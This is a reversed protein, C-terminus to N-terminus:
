DSEYQNKRHQSKSTFCYKTKKKKSSARLASLSSSLRDEDESPEEEEVDEDEDEESSSSSSVMSSDVMSLMVSFSSSLYNSFKSKKKWMKSAPQHFLIHETMIASMLRMTRPTMIVPEINKQKM